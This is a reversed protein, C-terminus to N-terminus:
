HLTIRTTRCTLLQPAHEPIEVCLTAVGYTAGPSSACHSLWHPSFGHVQLLGFLEEAALGIQIRTTLQLIADLYRSAEPLTIKVIQFREHSGAMSTDTNSHQSM